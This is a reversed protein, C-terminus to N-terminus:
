APAGQEYPVAGGGLVVMPSLAYDEEAAGWRGSGSDARATAGNSPMIPSRRSKFRAQFGGDQGEGEHLIKSGVLVSSGNSKEPFEM